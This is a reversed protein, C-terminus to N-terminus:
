QRIEMKSVMCTVVRPVGNGDTLQRASESMATLMDRQSVVKTLVSPLDAGIRDISKIVIAAGAAELRRAAEKQNAALVLMIAPVGLCCREWSTSGAAGIVLDADAMLQAMDPTNVRVEVPWRMAACTKKVSELWPARVGMVVTIRCDVPLPYADLVELVQGTVNQFDVGGMTVLINQFHRASDRRRLSYERLKSFEPRLLAYDAGILNTCGNPVLDQYDKDSRGLTPDLLLDCDHERDALDDIVMVGRSDGRVAREWQVDLAYHDVILWDPRISKLIAQTDAADDRWDCALWKAHLPVTGYLPLEWKDPAGPRVPHVTYGQASIIDLLHGRHERSIFHCRAGHGKLADALTLCRMVHGIGIELSADTRFVVEMVLTFVGPTAGQVDM